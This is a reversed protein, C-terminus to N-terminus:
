LMQVILYKDNEWFFSQSNEITTERYFHSSIKKNRILDFINQSNFM